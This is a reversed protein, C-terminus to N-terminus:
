ILRWRKYNEVNIKWLRQATHMYYFNDDVLTMLGAREARPNFFQDIKSSKGSDQMKNSTLYFEANPNTLLIFDIQQNLTEIFQWSDKLMGRGTVYGPLVAGRFLARYSNLGLEEFRHVGAITFIKNNDLGIFFKGYPMKMQDLKISEFSGNNYYGLKKCTDCFIKLEPLDSNELTRFILKGLKEM